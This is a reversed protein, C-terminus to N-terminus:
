LDLRKNNKQNETSEDRVSDKLLFDSRNRHVVKQPVEFNFPM